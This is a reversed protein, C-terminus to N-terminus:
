KNPNLNNNFNKYLLSTFPQPMALKKKLEKIEKQTAKLTDFYWARHEGFPLGIESLKQLKVTCAKLEFTTHVIQPIM